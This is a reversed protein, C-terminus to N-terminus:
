RMLSQTAFVFVKLRATYKFLVSECAAKKMQGLSPFVVTSLMEHATDWGCFM